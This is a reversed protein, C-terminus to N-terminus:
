GLTKGIWESVTQCIAAGEGEHLLMHGSHEFWCIEKQSSSVRDFVTQASSPNVTKDLRGQVVLLPVRVDKLVPKVANQVAILQGIAALPIRVEARLRAVLIPDSFDADPIYQRINTQTEQTEFDADKFPYMWPMVFKMFGALVMQKQLRLELAPALTVLADCKHQAAMLLNLLGGMSFGILVTKQTTRKLVELESQVHDFWRQWGIGKLHEPNQGHGPLLIVRVTHGDKALREALPQLEHPSGLFGHVIMVGIPGGVHLFPTSPRAHQDLINTM